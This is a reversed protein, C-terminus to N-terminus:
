IEYLENIWKGNCYSIGIGPYYIYKFYKNLQWLSFDVVSCDWRNLRQCPVRRICHHFSANSYALPIVHYCSVPPCSAGLRARKYCNERLVLWPGLLVASIGGSPLAVGVWNDQVFGKRMLSRDSGLTM